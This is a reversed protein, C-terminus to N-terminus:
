DKHADEIAKRQADYAAQREAKIESILALLAQYAALDEEAEEVWSNDVTLGAMGRLRIQEKLILEEIQSETPFAEWMLDEEVENRDKYIPAHASPKQDYNKMTIERQKNVIIEVEEPSKGLLLDPLIDPYKKALDEKQKETNITEIQDTLTEVTKKLDEIKKVAESDGSGKKNMDEIESLVSKIEKDKETLKQQLAKVNEEAKAKTDDIEKQWEADTKAM